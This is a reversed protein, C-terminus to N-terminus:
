KEIIVLQSYMIKYMNTELREKCEVLKILQMMCNKIFMVPTQMCVSRLYHRKGAIDDEM